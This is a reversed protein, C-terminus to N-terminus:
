ETDESKDEVKWVHLRNRLGSEMMWIEDEGNVILVINRVFLKFFLYRVANPEDKIFNDDIENDGDDDPEFSMDNVVKIEGCPFIFRVIATTEDILYNEGKEIFKYADQLTSLEKARFRGDVHSISYGGFKDSVWDGIKNLYQDDTQNEDKIFYRSLEVTDLSKLRKMVSDRYFLSDLTSRLYGENTLPMFFEFIIVKDYCFISYDTAIHRNQTVHNQFKDWTIFRRFSESVKYNGDNEKILLTKFQKSFYTRFSSETWETYDRFDKRSFREQSNFKDSLFEFAKEQHKFSGM